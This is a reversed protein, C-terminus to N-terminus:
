QNYDLSKETKNDIQTNSTPKQFNENNFNAMINIILKNKAM